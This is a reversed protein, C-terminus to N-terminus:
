EHINDGADPQNDSESATYYPSNEIGRIDFAIENSFDGSYEALRLLHPMIRSPSCQAYIDSMDLNCILMDGLATNEKVLQLSIVGDENYSARIKYTPNDALFQLGAQKDTM